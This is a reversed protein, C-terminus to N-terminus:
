QRYWTVSRGFFPIGVYGRLILSQENKNLSMKAHYVKGDRPDLIRGNYCSNNECSMNKIIVLGLIPKNKQEGKCFHCIDNTHQDGVEYIHSIKGEVTGHDEYISIVSAPQHTKDDLTIWNGLIRKNFGNAHAAITLLCFSVTIFLNWVFKM